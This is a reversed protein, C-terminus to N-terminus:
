LCDTRTVHQGNKECVTQTQWLCNTDTVFLRHRDSVTETQILCEKQHNM